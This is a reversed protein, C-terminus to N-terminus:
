RLVVRLLGRAMEAEEAETFTIDPASPETQEELVRVRVEEVPPGLPPAELALSEPALSEARAAPEGAPEAEAQTNVKGQFPDASAAPASPAAAAPPEELWPMAAVSASTEAPPEQLAQECFSVGQAALDRTTPDEATELVDRYLSAALEPQGLGHFHIHGLLLQLRQRRDGTLESDAEGLLAEAQAKAEQFRGQSYALEVSRYAQDYGSFM